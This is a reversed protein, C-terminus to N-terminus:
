CEDLMRILINSAINSANAGAKLGYITHLVSTSVATKEELVHHIVYECVSEFDGKQQEEVEEDLNSQEDVSQIHSASLTSEKTFAKYCTKHYRLERAIM